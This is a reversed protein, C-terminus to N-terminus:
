RVLNFRNRPRSDTLEKVNYALHFIRDGEAHALRIKIRRPVDALFADIRQFLSSRKIGGICTQLFQTLLNVIIHVSLVVNGIVRVRLNNHRDAATLRNVKRHTRHEIRPVLNQDWLRAIDGIIRTRNKCISNRHNDFQFLFILEAQSRLFQKLLDRRLRFNQHKRERVIRGTRDHGALIKLLNCLNHLLMIEKHERILDVSLQSVSLLWM